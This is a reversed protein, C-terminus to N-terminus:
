RKYFCDYHLTCQTFTNFNMRVIILRNMTMLELMGM